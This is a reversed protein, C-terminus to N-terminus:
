ADHPVRDGKLMANPKGSLTVRSPDEQYLVGWACDGM